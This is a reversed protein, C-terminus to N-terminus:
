RRSFLSVITRGPAIASSRRAMSRLGSAPRMPGPKTSRKRKLVKAEGSSAPKAVGGGPEATSTGPEAVVAEAKKPIRYGALAELVPNGSM